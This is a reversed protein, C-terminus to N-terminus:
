IEPGFQVRICKRVEAFDLNEMDRVVVNIYECQSVDLGSIGDRIVDRYFV